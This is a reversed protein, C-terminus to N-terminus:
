ACLHSVACIQSGSHGLLKWPVMWAQLSFCPPFNWLVQWGLCWAKLESSWLAFGWRKGLAQKKVSCEVVRMVETAWQCDWVPAIMLLSFIFTFSFMWGLNNPIFAKFLIHLWYIAIGEKLKMKKRFVWHKICHQSCERSGKETILVENQPERTNILGLLNLFQTWIVSFKMFETLLM